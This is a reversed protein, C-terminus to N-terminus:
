PFSGLAQRYLEPSFGLITRGNIVALPVRGSPEIEKRRRAADADKEVDYENFSIGQQQLYARAKGCVPCWSTVYLDVRPTRPRGSKRLAASPPTSQSPTERPAERAGNPPPKRSIIVRGEPDVWRYWNDASVSQFGILLFGLLLLALRGNVCMGGQSRFRARTEEM